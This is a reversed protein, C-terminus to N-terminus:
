LLFGVARQLLTDLPVAMLLVPVFPVLTAWLVILLSRLEVPVLRLQYVNAVISYLDTAASFDPAQLADDDVRGL